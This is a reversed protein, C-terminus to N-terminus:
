QIHLWKVTEAMLLTYHSIIHLCLTNSVRRRICNYLPWIISVARQKEHKTRRRCMFCPCVKYSTSLSASLSVCIHLYWPPRLQQGQAACTVDVYSSGSKNWLIFLLAHKFVFDFTFPGWYHDQDATNLCLKTNSCTGNRSLRDQTEGTLKTRDFCKSWCYNEKISHHCTLSFVWMDALYVRNQRKSLTEQLLRSLKQTCLSLPYLTNIQLLTSQMKLASMCGPIQVQWARGVSM